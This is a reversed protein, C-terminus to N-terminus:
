LRSGHGACARARIRRAPLPTAGVSSEEYKERITEKAPPVDWLPFLRLLGHGIVKHRFYYEHEWEVEAMGLLREILDERDCGVAYAGAREYEVINRSELRGAGYMPLFRGSVHCLAGLVKGIAFFVAERIPLPKAGLDRLIDGVLQRHHHEEEEIQRIRAREEPNRCSRWHGAYAFGAALEGSYAHQLERILGRRDADSM